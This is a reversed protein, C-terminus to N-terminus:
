RPSQRLLKILQEQLRGCGPQGPRTCDFCAQVPVATHPSRAPPTQGRAAAGLAAGAVIIIALSIIKRRIVCM